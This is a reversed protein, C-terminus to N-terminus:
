AAKQSLQNLRNYLTKVAIGLQQAAATKNGNNRDIANDIAEQEIEALTRPAIRIMTVPADPDTLHRPMHPTDIPLKDCLVSSYEITNALERINGPWSWRQLVDLAADTFLSEHQDLNRRHRGLLEAALSPIDSTRERLAPLRVEFTNIRYLLDQRFQDQNVMEALDCHTASVIRVDVRFPKTDGVRRIEGSELVRLLRSQLSKPLEGIEDLFLTGGDAVEFLGQRNEDAGTFAGKRHGFLESEILNEPLSGCNVALFAQDRRNSQAHIAQAVLEKGTGTEGTILVNSETPAVREILEMVAKMLPHNGVIQPEGEARKLRRSLVQIERSMELRERVRQVRNRLEVLTCPKELFDLAGLRLAAIASDRTAKGTLVIAETDPSHEKLRQIVEIGGMGPMDLDVILLDFHQQEIKQAACHGDECVTVKCGMRPLEEAMLERLRPEDDAFLVDLLRANNHQTTNKNSM